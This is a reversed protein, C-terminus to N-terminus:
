QRRDGPKARMRKREGNVFTAITARHQDVVTLPFHVFRSLRRARQFALDIDNMPDKTIYDEGNTIYFRM